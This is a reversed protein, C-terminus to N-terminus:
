NSQNNATTHAVGKCLALHHMRLEQEKTNHHVRKARQELPVAKFLPLHLGGDVPYPLVPQCGLHVNSNLTVLQTTEDTLHTFFIAPPHANGDAYTVGSDEFKVM